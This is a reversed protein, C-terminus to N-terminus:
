VKSYTIIWEDSIVGNTHNRSPVLNRHIIKDQGKETLILGNGSLYEDLIENTRIKTGCINNNGVIITIYGGKKLYKKIVSLFSNLQEFYNYIIKAKRVDIAIIKKLSKQLIPNDINKLDELTTANNNVNETGIMKRKTQLLEEPLALGTMWNELKYSRYYDQANIYPPSTIIYDFKEFKNLLGTEKISGIDLAIAKSYYKRTNFQKPLSSYISYMREFSTKFESLPNSTRNRRLDLERKSRYLKAIRNDALSIRRIISSYCVLLFKYVRDDYADRIYEINGRLISLEKLDNKEFWYKINPFEYIEEWRKKLNYNNILYSKAESLKELSLSMTKVSSLLIALPNIDLGISNRQLYKAEVLTTGSGCFPDLITDGEKTYKQIFTYPIQPILKATYPHINHTLRSKNFFSKDSNNKFNYKLRYM